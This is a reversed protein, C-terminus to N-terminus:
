TAIAVALPEILSPDNNKVNGVRPGVPWAVMEDAPYPALLAKLRMPDAPKEGLWEPWTEVSPAGRLALDDAAERDDGRCRVRKASLQVVPHRYDQLRGLPRGAGYHGSGGPWDRLPQKGSPTKQWEFFPIGPGTAIRIV